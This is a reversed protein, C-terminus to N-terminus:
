ITNNIRRTIRKHNKHGWRSLTEIDQATGRTQAHKIAKAYTLAPEVIFDLETFNGAHLVAQPIGSNPQKVMKWVQVSEDGIESGTQKTFGEFLEPYLTELKQNAM